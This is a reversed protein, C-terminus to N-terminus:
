AARPLLATGDRQIHRWYTSRAEEMATWQGYDIIHTNLLVDHELSVRAAIERIKRAIQWDNSTTVILIDIDSDASADGRAKSGFLSVALVQDPIVALLRAVLIELAIREGQHLSVLLKSNM